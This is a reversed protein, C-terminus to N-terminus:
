IHYSSKCIGELLSVTNCPPAILGFKQSAFWCIGMHFLGQNVHLFYQMVVEDSLEGFQKLITFLQSATFFAKIM